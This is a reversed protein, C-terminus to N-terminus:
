VYVVAHHVHERNSPRIESMQVWKDETFGTPVIEYTYEVDGRAPLSVPKPMRVVTSPAPITWGEAWHPPTPAQHPDGAPENASDWEALRAIEDPSLSPDNSFHGYKPDAFWPPMKRSQTMDRILRAWKHADDYTVLAMPAIGGARHCRQCH